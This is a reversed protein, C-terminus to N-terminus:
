QTVGERIASPTRSAPLGNLFAVSIQELRGLMGKLRRSLLAHLLLSPIAVILGFETTILAESIGGALTKPDGTGFVTIVNFTNIMGTVTGLLGLLPAAAAALALFPLGREWRPRLALMKEYLVEEIAEKPERWHAVAAELMRGVPGAIRRAVLQAREPNGESLAVLVAQVEEPGAMPVRSLQVWKVVFILLATVGLLLIPVMVPGGKRIHTWLSDRTAALKLANGQTPDVPLLGAGNSAVARIESAAKEGVPVVEPAPANLRVQVVGAAGDEGAAAFWVAPGIMVYRGEVLAGGASLARGEVIDGGMLREIRELGADVLALQRGLRDAPDGADESRARQYERLVGDYRSAEAGHLRGSFAEFYNHLLGEVAAVENSRARLESKLVNLEVLANDAARRARELEARRATVTEELERVRRVLPLREAEVEARTRALERLAAELDARAGGEVLSWDAGMAWGAGLVWLIWLWYGRKM